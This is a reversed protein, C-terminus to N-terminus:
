RQRASRAGAPIWRRVARTVLRRAPLRVGELPRPRRLMRIVFGDGPAGDPGTLLEVGCRSSHRPVRVGGDLLMPVIQFVPTGPFAELTARCVEGVPLWTHDVIATWRPSPSSEVTASIRKVHRHDHRRVQLALSGAPVQAPLPGGVVLMRGDVRVRDVTVGPATCVWRWFAFGDHDQRYSAPLAAAGPAQPSSAGGLAREWAQHLRHWIEDPIAVDNQTIDRLLPRVQGRLWRAPSPDGDFLPPVLEIADLWADLLELAVDADAPTAGGYRLLASAAAWQKVALLRVTAQQHDPRCVVDDPPLVDLLEDVLSAVEDLVADDVSPNEIAHRELHTRGDSGIITMALVRVLQPDGDKAVLRVCELENRLYAVLGATRSSSSTMSTWGPRSRYLYVDQDVIDVSRAALLAQTMPVIDNSRAVEPFRIANREWFSRRFAKNWVSRGRLLDPWTRLQTGMRPEAFVPWNQSPRWIESASFKLFNGIAIDSGSRDLSDVLARHAGDPILDDGDAFILYRGRAAAAGVNRANAGGRDAPRIVIVRPDTAAVRGIIESTGDTSHDDVIIIETGPVDQRLICYLQEEIWDAVNHATVVVSLEPEGGEDLRLTSPDDSSTVDGEVPVAISDEM